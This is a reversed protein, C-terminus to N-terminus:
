DPALLVSLVFFTIEEAMAVSVWRGLEDCPCPCKCDMDENYETIGDIPNGLLRFLMDNVPDPLVMVAFSHSPRRSRCIM